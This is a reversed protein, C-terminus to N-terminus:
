KLYPRPPRARWRLCGAGGEAAGPRRPWSPPTPVPRELHKRKPSKPFRFGDATTDGSLINGSATRGGPADKLISELLFTVFYLFLISPTPSGM